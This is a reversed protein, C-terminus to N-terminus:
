VGTIIEKLRIASWEQIEGINSKIKLQTSCVHRNQLKMLCDHVYSIRYGASKYAVKTKSFLPEQLFEKGYAYM